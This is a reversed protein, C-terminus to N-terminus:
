LAVKSLRRVLVYGLAFLTGAVALALRGAGTGVMADLAGPSLGNVLVVAVVAIVIVVYGSFTAGVTATRIERRLQRREDLTASITSLATVLAGGARNQIVLTQTLVGIERSPLRERLRELAAGVGHGVGLEACVQALESAAPEDVEQAAIRLARPLGLGAHTANALVRAVEPLQAIVREVRQQRRHDLWRAVSAVVALGVVVGGVRGLLPSSALAALVTAVAVALVVASPSWGPYGAGALLAGLRTGARTRAFRTDLGRWRDRRVVASPGVADVLAGRREATSQRYGVTVVLLVCALASLALVSAATM